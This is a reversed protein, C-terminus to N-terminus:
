LPLDFALVGAGTVILSLCIVLLLASATASLPFFDPYRNRWILQKLALLAGAIAAAQTYAGAILLVGLLLEFLSAFLPIWMGRGIVIFKEKALTERKGYHMWALFLFVVGAALRLLSASFPSLFLIQPFLSLM